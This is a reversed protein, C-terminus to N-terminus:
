LNNKTLYEELGECTGHVEYYEQSIIHNPSHDKESIVKIINMVEDSFKNDSTNIDPPVTNDNMLM